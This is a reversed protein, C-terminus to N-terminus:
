RDVAFARHVDITSIDLIHHKLFATDNLKSTLKIAEAESKAEIFSAVKMEIYTHVEYKKNM